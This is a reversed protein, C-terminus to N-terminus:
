ELEYILKMQHHLIVCFDKNETGRVTFIVYFTICKLM